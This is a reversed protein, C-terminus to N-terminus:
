PSQSDSEDSGAPALCEWTHDAERKRRFQQDYVTDMATPPLGTCLYRFVATHFLFGNGGSLNGGPLKASLIFVGARFAIEGRPNPKPFYLSGKGPSSVSPKATIWCKIRDDGTTM